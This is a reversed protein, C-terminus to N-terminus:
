RGRQWFWTGHQLTDAQFLARCSTRPHYSGWSTQWHSYTPVSSFALQRWSESRSERISCHISSPDDFRGGESGVSSCRWAVRWPAENCTFDLLISTACAFHTWLLVCSTGGFRRRQSRHCGAISLIYFSLSKHQRTLPFFHHLTFWRHSPYVKTMAQFCEGDEDYCALLFGGFWGTRKGTGYWAGIPVLDVSDTM